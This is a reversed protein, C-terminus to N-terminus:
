GYSPLSLAFAQGTPQSLASVEAGAQEACIKACLFGLGRGYRSAGGSKSRLQGEVTFIESQQGQALPTGGDAVIVTCRGGEFSTSVQVPTGSPCYQIASRILNELVRSFMQRNSRIRVSKGVEDKLEVAVGHSAAAMRSREVVENVLGSFGLGVLPLPEGGGLQFSLVEMNEIVHMLGDCSAVADQAAESLDRDIASLATLLYNLNSHLASLPNRMDHTLLGLLGSLAKADIPETM